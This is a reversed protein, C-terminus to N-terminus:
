LGDLELNAVPSVFSAFTKEAVMATIKSNGDSLIIRSKISKKMDAESYVTVDILQLTM